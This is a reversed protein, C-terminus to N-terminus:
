ILSEARAPTAYLQGAGYYACIKDEELLTVQDPSATKPVDVAQTSLISHVYVYRDRGGKMVFFTRPLLVPGSAGEPNPSVELYRILMEGRDVWVDTVTGGVIRDGYVVPLGRPDVDNEAISFDTAIRMPVIKPQGDHMLDPLYAREAYSGPGVNALMPDGVPELPSGAAIGMREAKIPRDDRKGNPVSVTGRDHPLIFTKPPPVFLWSDKDFRGTQDGELPYGERRDEQRLYWILGAFFIWFVYLTVQAVDLYGTLAGIQM